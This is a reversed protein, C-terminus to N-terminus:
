RGCSKLGAAIRQELEFMARTRRRADPLAKLSRSAEEFARCAESERNAIQLIEGRRTLWVEKRPSQKAALDLRELGADYNQRCLELDIAALELTVLPGLLSIGRDLVAIARDLDPVAKSWEIFFEPTPTENLSDAIEWEAMAEDTARLASFVRARLVATEFSQPEQRVLRDLAKRADRYRGAEFYLRGRALDVASLHPDLAQARSYDRLALEREGHIRHLEGRRLYLRANGPEDKIWSSVEAIQQDLGQHAFGSSVALLFLANVTLRRIM